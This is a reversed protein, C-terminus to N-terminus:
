SNFQRVSDIIKVMEVASEVDHVRIINAGNIVALTNATITGTLRNEVPQDLVAGIFSKRSLGILLPLNLSKFSRLENIIRLNDKLRKGFGIGPDIIIMNRPIGASIASSILSQLEKLIESVANEYYPNEQMTKPKGRMHMLIVPAKRSAILEAMPLNDRLGSIDNVIDAGVDLARQAVERKTTDISILIDSERRIEEIVPIVRRIEEDFEVPDSGPRTSEGGIDLIDAGTAIMTKARELASTTTQLRSDPYFSDRTCNLVGMVYTKQNFDLVRNGWAITQERLKLCKDLEGAISELDFQEGRLWSSLQLLTKRNGALILDTTNRTQEGAQRHMAASGGLNALYAQILKASRSDVDELKVTYYLFSDILQEIDKQDTGIELLHQEIDYRSKLDILYANLMLAQGHMKILDEFSKLLEDTESDLLTTIM